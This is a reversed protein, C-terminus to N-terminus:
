PVGPYRCAQHWRRRHDRDLWIPAGLEIDKMCVDCAGAMWNRSATTLIPPRSSTVAEAVRRAGRVAASYIRMLKRDEVRSQVTPGIPREEERAVWAKM